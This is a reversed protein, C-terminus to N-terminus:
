REIQKKPSSSSERQPVGQKVKVAQKDKFNEVLLEQAIKTFLKAVFKIDEKRANEAPDHSGGTSPLFVMTKKKAPVYGTDQGPYSPMEIYQIGNKNCTESIIKNFKGLQKYQFEKQFLM